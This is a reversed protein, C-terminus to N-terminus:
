STLKKSCLHVNKLQRVVLKYHITDNIRMQPESSIQMIYIYKYYYQLAVCAWIGPMRNFVSWDTNVAARPWGKCVAAAAKDSLGRAFVSSWSFKVHAFSDDVDIVVVPKVFYRGCSKNAARSWRVNSDVYVPSWRVDVGDVRWCSDNTLVTRNDSTVEGLDGTLKVVWICSATLMRWRINAVLWM